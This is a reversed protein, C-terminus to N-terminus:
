IYKSYELRRVEIDQGQLDRFFGMHVQVPYRASEAERSDPSFASTRRHSLRPIHPFPEIDIM